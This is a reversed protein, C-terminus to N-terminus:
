PLDEALFFFFGVFPPTNSIRGLPESQIQCDNIYKLPIYNPMCINNFINKNHIKGKILIFHNKRGNLSKQRSNQKSVSLVVKEKKTKDKGM